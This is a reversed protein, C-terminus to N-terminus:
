RKRRQTGYGVVVIEELMETSETLVIELFSQGAVAIEQSDFGIYSVVLM